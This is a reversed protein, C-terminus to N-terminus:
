QRHNRKTTWQTKWWTKVVRWAQLRRRNTLLLSASEWTAFGTQELHKLDELIIRARVSFPHCGNIAKCAQMPLFRAAEIDNFCGKVVKFRRVRDKTVYFLYTRYTYQLTLKDDSDPTAHVDWIYGMQKKKPDWYFGHSQCYNM